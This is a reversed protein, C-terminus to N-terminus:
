YLFFIIVSILYESAFIFIPAKPLKKFLAHNLVLWKLAQLTTSFLTQYDSKLCIKEIAQLMEGKKKLKGHKLSRETEYKWKRSVCKLKNISGGISCYEFFINELVDDLGDFCNNSGQQLGHPNSSCIDDQKSDTQLKLIMSDM